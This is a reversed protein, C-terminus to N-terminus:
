IVARLLSLYGVSTKMVATLTALSVITFGGANLNLSTQSQKLCMLIIRQFAAPANYWLCDYFARELNRSEVVLFNGLLCNVFVMGSIVFTCVFCRTGVVYNGRQMNVLGQYNTLCLLFTSTLLFAALYFSFISSIRKNMWIIQNHHNIVLGLDKQLARPDSTSLNEIRSSLLSIQGCLHFITLIYLFDINVRIFTNNVLLLAIFIFSLFYTWENNIHYLQYLDLPLPYTKSSSTVSSNVSSDVSSADSLRSLVPIICVLCLYPVLYYTAITFLTDIVLNYKELVEREKAHKYHRPHCQNKMVEIITIISDNYYSLSGLCFASTLLGVSDMLIALVYEIDNINVFLNTYTMIVQYVVGFLSVYFRVGWTSTEIGINSMMWKMREFNKLSKKWFAADDAM